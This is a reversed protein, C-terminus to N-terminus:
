ASERGSYPWIKVAQEFLGRGREEIAEENWDQANKARQQFYGSLLLTSNEYM